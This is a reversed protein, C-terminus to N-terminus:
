LRSSKQQMKETHLCCKAKLEHELYEKKKEDEQKACILTWFCHLTSILLLAQQTLTFNSMLDFMVM